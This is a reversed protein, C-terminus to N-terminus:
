AASAVHAGGILMAFGLPVSLLGLAFRAWYNVPHRLFSLALGTIMAAVYAMLTMLWGAHFAFQTDRDNPYIAYAVTVAVYWVTPVTLAGLVVALRSRSTPRRWFIAGVVVPLALEFIAAGITLASEDM